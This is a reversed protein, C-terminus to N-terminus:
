EGTMDVVVVEPRNNFRPIFTSNGLGRSLVMTRNGDQSHYLGAERGIFWGQDPAYMGGVFPLRIQGGHAHGSFVCDIGWSDLSGYDIWAVPMHCMLIKLQKTNQFAKLFRQEDAMYESASEEPVCYGCVGGLRVQQGKILIDEYEADLVHAGAAEFIATLDASYKIEYMKEHNGYSFYVPAIELLLEILQVTTESNEEYVTVMDGTLLIIDPKQEAVAKVLRSNGEGFVSNHLDSLHVIRIPETIKDSTIEYRSIELSYKSQYIFVACGILLLLMLILMWYVIPHRGVRYKFEMM